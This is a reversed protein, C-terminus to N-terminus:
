SGSLRQDFVRKSKRETRPLSQYAVVEVVPSVMTEKRIDKEIRKAITADQAPNGDQIREVKLNMYDKGDEQHSLHIQYESGIGQQKSLIEDIHSPYINVGRVIFM